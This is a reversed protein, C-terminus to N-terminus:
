GAVREGRATAWDIRRLVVRDVLLRGDEGVLRGLLLHERRADLHAVVIM